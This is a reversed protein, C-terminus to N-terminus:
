SVLNGRLGEEGLIKEFHIVHTGFSISTGSNEWTISEAFTLSFNGTSIIEFDFACDNEPSFKWDFSFTTDETVYARYYACTPIVEILGNEVARTKKRQYIIFEPTQALILEGNSGFSFDSSPKIIGFSEHDAHQYEQTSVVGNEVNLGDGIKVLGFNEKSAIGITPVSITGNDLNIGSGIKVRGFKERTAIDSEDEATDDIEDCLIYTYASDAATDSNIQRQTLGLQPLDDRLDAEHVDALIMTGNNQLQANSVTEKITPAKKLVARPDIWMTDFNADSKKVLIEGKKGGEGGGGEVTSFGSADENVVIYQRPQLDKLETDVTGVLESPIRLSKADLNQVTNNISNISDSCESIDADIMTISTAIREVDKSAINSPHPLPYNKNETKNDIM